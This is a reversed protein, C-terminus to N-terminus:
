SQWNFDDQSLATDGFLSQSGKSDAPARPAVSLFNQCNDSRQEPTTTPSQALPASSKFSYPNSAQAASFSFDQSTTLSFTNLTPQPLSHALPSQSPSPSESVPLLQPPPAGSPAPPLVIKAPAPAASFAPASPLVIKNAPAAGSPAPPLTFSSPSPVGSPAPPLVIKGPSPTQAQFLSARFGPPQTSGNSPPPASPPTTSCGQTPLLTTSGPSSQPTFATPMGGGTAQQQQRPREEVGNPVVRSDQQSLPSTGGLGTPRAGSFATGDVTEPRRSASAGNSQELPQLDGYERTSKSTTVLPSFQPTTGPASRSGQATSGDTERGLPLTALARRQEAPETPTTRSVVLADLGDQSKSSTHGMKLVPGKHQDSYLQQGVSAAGTPPIDSMSQRGLKAIGTATREGADPTGLYVSGRQQPLGTLPPQQRRQRQQPPTQLSLSTKLTAPKPAEGFNPKPLTSQVGQPLPPRVQDLSRRETPQREPFNMGTSKTQQTPQPAAYSPLHISRISNLLDQPM